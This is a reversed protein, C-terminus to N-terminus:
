NVNWGEGAGKQFKASFRTYKTCTHDIYMYISHTHTFRFWEVWINIWTCDILSYNWPFYQIVRTCPDSCCNKFDNQYMHIELMGKRSASGNIDLANLPIAVLKLSRELWIHYHLRHACEHAHESQSDHTWLQLFEVQSSSHPAQFTCCLKIGM